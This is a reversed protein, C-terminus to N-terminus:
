RSIECGSIYIDEIKGKCDREKESARRKRAKDDYNKAFAFAERYEKVARNYCGIADKIERGDLVMDFYKKGYKDYVAKAEPQLYEVMGSGNNYLFDAIGVLDEHEKNIYSGDTNAWDRLIVLMSVLDYPIKGSTAAKVSKKNAVIKRKTIKM